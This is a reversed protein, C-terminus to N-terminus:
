FWLVIVFLVSALLILISRYDALNPDQSETNNRSQNRCFGLVAMFIVLCYYQVTSPPNNETTYRGVPDERILPPSGM